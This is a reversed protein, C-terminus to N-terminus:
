LPTVTIWNNSDNAEIEYRDGLPSLKLALAKEKAAENSPAAFVLVYTGDRFACGFGDILDGKHAKLVEEVQDNVIYDCKAAAEIDARTATASTAPAGVSAVEGSSGCATLTAAAIAALTIATTKM